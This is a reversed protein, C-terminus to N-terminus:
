RAQAHRQWSGTQLRGCHELLIAIDSAKTPSRFISCSARSVYTLTRTFQHCASLQQSQCAWSVHCLVWPDVHRSSCNSVAFAILRAHCKFHQHHQTACGVVSSLSYYLNGVQLMCCFHVMVYETCQFSVYGLHCSGLGARHEDLAQRQLLEAPFLQPWHRGAKLLYFFSLQALHM